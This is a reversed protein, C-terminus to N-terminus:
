PQIDWACDQQAREMPHLWPVRLRHHRREDDRNPPRDPLRDQETKGGCKGMREYDPRERGGREFKAAMPAGLRRLRIELQGRGGDDSTERDPHEKARSPVRPSRGLMMVVMVVPVLM